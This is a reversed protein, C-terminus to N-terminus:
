LIGRDKKWQLYFEPPYLELEMTDKKTFVQISSGKCILTSNDTNYIEYNFLIKAAPSDVYTTKIIAEEGFTLPHKHQVLVEVIPVTYGANFVDLYGLGFKRGFDQRGDEFYNVYHGHWVIRLADVENFRVRVPTESVLKSM